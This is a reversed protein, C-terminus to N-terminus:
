KLQEKIAAAVAQPTLGYKKFLQERTGHEIFESPLGIRKVNAKIGEKEFFELIASGFGGEIVGEELTVFLLKIRKSLNKLLEEDLPKVFRANIVACDINDKELIKAAQQGAWVMSGLALIAVDKGEKLIEAKGLQVEPVSFQSSVVSLQMETGRPYRIATMGKYEVAFDLMFKLEDTDKPAMLTMHPIHRLFAIDFLGHHTPGDEGVLGARDLVFVADLNQLAIDHVLQDYARQLFTSYVAVVPKLGGRSLGAAFGVAHGEAIGVDFFRAPFEKSFETLGTGDPMAATVAVVNGYKKGIEVMHQGFVETYTRGKIVQVEGNSIVRKEGTEIEFPPASHFATPSEEAYKYGKGKKTNVHILVPEKLDMVKKFMEILITTNHGDIPGFYRFGMEEFLIGATLLNTIGEEFRKAARYASYGFKPMKKLLSEVDKRVRNYLPNTLIRNLYKSLAGITPSISIENDNLIIILNKGLHGAHNLAESAMGGALAADGIVAVIKNNKGKLGNATILGLANSISNSSHGVTFADYPSENKNPFGSLGGMQRITPFGDRRGTLLKHAYAQHGVDWVIVDDPANLLYHLAITIEVAGLSSAIHGGSKCIVRIIEERIEQALQPLQAVPIKKLDAPSNITDLLKGM